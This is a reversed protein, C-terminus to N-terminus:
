LVGAKKLLKQFKKDQKSYEKPNELFYRIRRDEDQDDLHHIQLGCKQCVWSLTGSPSIFSSQIAVNNNVKKIHAHTCYNKIKGKRKEDRTKLYENLNFSFTIKIVIVSVAFVIILLLIEFFTFDM